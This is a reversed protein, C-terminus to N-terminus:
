FVVNMSWVTPIIIGHLKKFSLYLSTLTFFLTSTLVIDSVPIATAGSM